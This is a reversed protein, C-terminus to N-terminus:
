ANMKERLESWDVELAQEPCIRECQYCWMCADSIVPCPELTIAQAPCTRACTGCRTCLDENVTIPPLFRKMRGGQMVHSLLFYKGGVFRYKPLGFRREDRFWRCENALREGFDQAQGLEQADPHGWARFDHLFMPYTDYGPCSYSNVVTYGRAALQKQMRRLTNVPHGGQTLFTFAPKRHARPLREIFRRVVVPEKYYFVPTGIGVVDYRDADGPDATLLDSLQAKVGHAQLGRVVAEAVQRTNGTQSFCVVLASVSDDSM